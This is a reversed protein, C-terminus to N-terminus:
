LCTSLSNGYYFGILCRVLMLAAPMGCFLVFCVFGRFLLATLTASPVVHFHAARSFDSGDVGTEYYTRFFFVM